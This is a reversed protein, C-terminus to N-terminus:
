FKVIWLYSCMKGLDPMFTMSYFMSISINTQYVRTMTHM